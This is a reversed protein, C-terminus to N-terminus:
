NRPRAHGWLILVRAEVSRAIVVEIRRPPNKIGREWIKQNLSAGVIVEEAKMHRGVFAKLYVIAKPAFRRKSGRRAKKLPVVMIREM